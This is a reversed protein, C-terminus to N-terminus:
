FNVLFKGLPNISAATVRVLVDTPRRLVPAPRSVKSLRGNEALFMESMLALKSSCVREKAMM